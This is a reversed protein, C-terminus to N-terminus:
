YTHIDTRWRLQTDTREHPGAKEFTQKRGHGNIQRTAEDNRDAFSYVFGGTQITEGKRPLMQSREPLKHRKEVM